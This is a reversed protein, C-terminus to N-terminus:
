CPWWPSCAWCGKKQPSPLLLWVVLAILPPVLPLVQATVSIAAPMGTLYRSRPQSSASLPAWVVLPGTRM